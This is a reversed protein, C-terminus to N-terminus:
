TQPDIRARRMLDALDPRREYASAAGKWAERVQQLAGEARTKLTQARDEDRLERAAAAGLAAMRWEYEKSRRAHREALAKQAGDLAGAADGRLLRAYASWYLPEPEMASPSSRSEDGERSGQRAEAYRLLAEASRRHSESAGSGATSFQHVLRKAEDFRAAVVAQLARLQLVWPARLRFSQEPRSELEALLPEAEDQRGLRILLEARNGLDYPLNTPDNQRRRIQEAQRLASESEPLSGIVVAFWALNSLAAAIQAEDQLHRSARLLEDAVTRGENYRGLVELARSIIELTLLEYRRYAKERVFPLLARATALGEEPEGLDTQAAAQQIRARAVIQQAGRTQALRIAEELHEHLSKRDAEGLSGGQQQYYITAALDILGMAAITSLGQQRAADVAAATLKRAEAFRGESATVSAISLQARILQIPHNLTRAKQEAAELAARAGRLDYSANLFSGKRLLSETEGEPNARARFLAEARAFARLAEANEGRQGLLVARRLNAAANDPELAIARDFTALAEAPRSAAEQSRGLDVWANADRRLGALNRYEEVAEDLQRLMTARVARVRLRDEPALDSENPVLQAVRNLSDQACRHDDIETCAEALRVWAAVYEPAEAVANELALRGSYYAGGRIWETGAEYLRQAVPAVAPDGPQRTAQWVAVAGILVALTLLLLLIQTRRSPPWPPPDKSDGATRIGSTLARLAGLLEEASQFRDDPEKALLRRCLEDHRDSLGPRVSSVRPPEHYLVQHLTEVDTAARFARQGTLCEFLLAGLSFLDSRGDVARQRVQEPSMYPVTGVIAGPTTLSTATPDDATRRSLASLQAIGFDLLKARNGRTLMINQPKLDRHVIGQGHAEVLASAIDAAVTLALRVDLPGGRLRTALTEGEVYPMVLCAVGDPGEIIEHVGCINPHDLAAVARAERILRRRASEDAAKDASIFKIAVKRDLSTDHALYVAGMGGEGLLGELRYKSLRLGPVPSEMPRVLASSLDDPRRSCCWTCPRPRRAKRSRPFRRSVM